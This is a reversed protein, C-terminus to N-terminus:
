CHHPPLARRAKRDAKDLAKRRRHADRESEGPLRTEINVGGFVAVGTVRLIPRELDPNAAAREEHAFGGMIATGEMEVALQPPVVINVGGMFATIQVETVGPPLAAERFDLQAGGMLAVVRVIKAPSWHGRRDVGGLIAVLRQHDRNRAPATTPRPALATTTVPPAVPALDTTLRELEVLSDTRHAIGLRREFEEMDLDDRAFADSLTAIARERADRVAVISTAPAPASLQEKNAAM